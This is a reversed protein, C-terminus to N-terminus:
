EREQERNVGQEFENGLNRALLRSRLPRRRRGQEETPSDSDGDEDQQDELGNRAETPSDSDYDNDEEQSGYQGNDSNSSRDGGRGQNETEDLRDRVGPPLNAVPITDNIELHANVQSQILYMAQYHESFYRRQEEASAQPFELTASGSADVNANDLQYIETNTQTGDDNTCIVTFQNLPTTQVPMGRHELLLQLPNMDRSFYRHTNKNVLVRKNQLDVHMIPGDMIVAETTFLSDFTNWSRKKVEQFLFACLDHMNKTPEYKGSNNDRLFLGIAQQPIKFKTRRCYKLAAEELFKFELFLYAMKVFKTYLTSHTCMCMVYSAILWRILADSGAKEHEPIFQGWSAGCIGVYLVLIDVQENHTYLQNDQATTLDFFLKVKNEEMPGYHPIGGSMVITDGTEMLYDEKTFNKSRLEKLSKQLSKSQSAIRDLM